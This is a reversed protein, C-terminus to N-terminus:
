QATKNKSIIFGFMMVLSTLIIVQIILPKNVLPLSKEAPISLFLLITILGRPAMFILPLSKIGSLRFQTFRVVFILLTIAGSWLITNADLIDNVDLLYGFLLFFLARILFAMESLLEKFKHIETNLTEPHIREIFKIKKLEDLNGAILGFILIFALAPLHFYKSIGYILVVLILIPTFKVHHEIKHLLYALGITAIISIIILILLQGGFTTFSQLNVVENTLVFNFLLVGIIDSLSSEYIVFEKKEPSLNKASPIAIASSIVCLPIANILALSFPYDGFYYFLSAFAFSLIAIQIFSAALTKKIVSKKSKNLELELSGELVILILGITGFIPLLSSLDPIEFGLFLSTLKAALGLILLLIVSPIKTISSTLDFVYALLLLCCLTIIISNVM